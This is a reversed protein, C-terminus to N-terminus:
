VDADSIHWEHQCRRCSVKVQQQPREDRVLVLWGYTDCQSCVAQNAATEAHMMLYLYRRLAFVGIGACLLLSVLNGLQDALPLKRSFLEVTVLLGITCLLLLVLHVHSQMLEGEYWKRFGHKRIGDALRM